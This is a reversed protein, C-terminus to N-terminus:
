VIFNYHRGLPELSTKLAGQISHFLTFDIFSIHLKYCLLLVKQRSPSYYSIRRTWINMKFPIHLITIMEMINKNVRVLLTSQQAKNKPTHKSSLIQSQHHLYPNCNISVSQNQSLPHPPIVMVLRKKENLWSSSPLLCETDKNFPQSTKNNQLFNQCKNTHQYKGNVNNLHNVVCFSANRALYRCM